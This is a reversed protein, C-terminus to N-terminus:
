LVPCEPRLSLAPAQFPGNAPCQRCLSSSCTASSYSEDAHLDPHSERQRSAFRYRDKVNASRLGQVDPLCHRTEKNLRKQGQHRQIPRISPEIHVRRVPPNWRGLGNTPKDAPPAPALGSAGGAIRSPARRHAGTAAPLSQGPALFPRGFSQLLSPPAQTLTNKLKGSYVPCDM